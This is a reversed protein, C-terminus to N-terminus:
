NIPLRMDACFGGRGGVWEAARERSRTWVSGGGGGQVHLLNATFTDPSVGGGGRDGVPRHVVVACAIIAIHEPM